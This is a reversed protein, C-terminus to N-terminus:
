FRPPPNHCIPDCVVTEHACDQHSCPDYYDGTYVYPVDAYRVATYIRAALLGYFLAPEAGDVWESKDAARWLWGDEKGFAKIGQYVVNNVMGVMGGVLVDQHMIAEATLPKGALVRDIVRASAGGLFGGAAYGGVEFRKEVPFSVLSSVASEVAWRILFRGILQGSMDLRDDLGAQITLALGKGATRAILQDYFFGAGKAAPDKFVSGGLLAGATGGVVGGLAVGLAQEFTAGDNVASLTNYATALMAFTFACGIGSGCVAVSAATIGINVLTDFWGAIFYGTPDSYRLPNNQAYSYRNYSQLDHTFQVHPDPTLFRGLAADYVRGNMNVLGDAPISEHSTYARNGPPPTFAVGSSALGRPDRRAGWPDYGMTGADGGGWVASLVHGTEDSVATVSGLHDAHYYKNAPSPSAGGQKSVRLAFANGAHGDGAYIFQVHDITGGRTTREYRSKGTTTMGVYVTRAAPGGDSTGSVEQVVRQGDPGYMLEVTGAGVGESVIKTPKNFPSYEITRGGGAIMNGNDDYAFTGSGTVSCLAHPGAPRAGATCGTYLYDKGDKRTLNGLDDYAYSDTRNYAGAVVQATLLRDLGDYTFTEEANAANVTDTRVRQRLNGAGEYRYTWEQILANGDARAVSSSSMLWGTSPNRNSVTEVGNRTQERTVRGSADRALAAWYLGGEVENTVYHLHGFPTYTYGVALSSGNVAPYTVRTPRGANDFTYRTTFTEGDICEAEYDVDGNTKYAVWRGVRNGEGNEIGPITCGPSLREDPASVMASLKGAGPGSSVYAWRAAAGTPDIKEIVRGLGDYKLTFTRGKADRQTAVEGFGNYTYRWEGLDDDRSVARRGFRDYGIHLLNVAAQRTERLDGAANYEFTTAVGNARLWQVKGLVNRKERHQRVEGAQNRTVLITSGEATKEYSTAIQNTVSAGTGDIDGLEHTVLKVRGIGDFETRRWYIPDGIIFPKSEGALRGMLDYEKRTETLRGDFSRGRTGVIRQLGDVYQWGANGSAPRTVTVTAAFPPSGAPALHRRISTTHSEASGCRTITETPNGLRDTLNCTTLGDPGTGQRVSGHLPEFVMYSVEGGENTTRVPFRGNGYPVATILGSGAPASFQNRDYSARSTRFPLRAPGPAGPMCTDFDAACKTTTIAHGWRDYEYATHLEAGEGFGPEEIKKVLALATSTQLAYEYRTTHVIPDDGEDLFTLRRRTETSKTARGRRREVSGIAGYEDEIAHEYKVGAADESVVTMRTRSGREDYRFETTKTIREATVSDSLASNLLFTTEIERFPYVFLSTEPPITGGLEPTCASESVEGPKDCYKMGTVSVLGGGPTYRSVSTPRGTYPFSQSRITFTVFGEPDTVRTTRFGQPGRGADSMRLDGYAHTTIARSGNGADRSVSAVVRLPLKVRRTGPSVIDGDEYTGGPVQAAGTTIVAYTVITKNAMRDPFHKIFPPHYGNLWARRRGPMSQILDTVGDGDLDVFAAHNEFILGNEGRTVAPVVPVPVPGPRPAAVNRYNHGEPGMWTLPTDRWRDYEPGYLSKWTTGTNVFFQGQDDTEGPRNWVLDVLGDANLDPMAYAYHTGPISFTPSDSSTPVIRFVPPPSVALLAQVFGEAGETTYGFGTSLSVQPAHEYFTGPSFAGPARITVVDPFGDGDVDGVQRGRFTAYQADTYEGPDDGFDRRKWRNTTRGTNLLVTFSGVSGTAVRKSVLDPFGDRNIDELRYFGIPKDSITPSIGFAKMSWGSGTSQLVSVEYSDPAGFRVIDILGDNDMDALGSRALEVDGWGSPVAGFATSKAWRDPGSSRLRNLWVEVAPNAPPCQPPLGIPFTCAGEPESERILDPLGDGDVDGFAAAAKGNSRMLWTPLSWSPEHAWGSGTNRWVGSPANEASVVLDFRGDANLDILQTSPSGLTPASGSLEPLLYQPAERWAIDTADWDFELPQKCPPPASPQGPPADPRACYGIRWLQSPNLPWSQSIFPPNQLAPTDRYSLSYAGAPTIIESLRRNQPLTVNGFRIRRVDKREDYLFEIAHFTGDGEAPPGSAPVHGTYDIRTVLLGRAAFDEADDNYRVSYFNGWEDVVRDLAWLGIATGPGGPRVRAGSAFGYFRREGSKTTVRFTEGTSDLEITSFEEDEARFQAWGNVREGAFIRKGDICFGDIWDSSLDWQAAGGLPQAHGDQALTKACRHITSLGALVWGQGAIGNGGQSSHVLRLKPEVGAIGPPVAIPVEYIAAGTPSVSLNGEILGNFADGVAPDSGQAQMPGPLERFPTMDPQVIVEQGGVFVKIGGDGFPIAPLWPTQQSASVSQGAVTWTVTQGARFRPRVAVPHPGRAFVEPPSPYPLHTGNVTVFNSPPGVPVEFSTNSRNDYGFIAEYRDGGIPVVGTVSLVISNAPTPDTVWQPLKMKFARTAGNHVGIGAVEYNMNIATASQLTWHSQTPDILTNLDYHRGDALYIMAHLDGGGGSFATAAVDGRANVGYAHTRPHDADPAPLEDVAGDRFRYGRIDGDYLGHGVIFPGAADWAAALTWGPTVVDANLDRAGGPEGFVTAIVNMAYMGDFGPYFETRGALGVIRGADTIARADSTGSLFPGAPAGLNDIESGPRGARHRYAFPGGGHGWNIYHFGVADGGANISWAGSPPPFVAIDGASTQTFGSGHTRSDAVITGGANIAWAATSPEALGLDPRPAVEVIQGSPKHRFGRTRPRGRWTGYDIGVVEGGDNIDYAESADGRVVGLDVATAYPRPDRPCAIVPGPKCTGFGCIGEGTCSNGDDCALGDHAPPSSCEGTASDCTGAGRCQGTPACTKPTGACVGAGNCKDGTTCHSGDECADNADRNRCTGVFGARNCATCAGGAVGGGCRSDCCVGDVCFGSACQSDSTCAKSWSPDYVRAEALTATGRAGGAILVRGGSLLTATQGRVAAGIPSTAAWSTGGSWMEATALDSSTNGASSGGAVVVQGDALTGSPLLTATHGIRPSTTGASPWGGSAVDFLLATTHMTSGNKGGTVLVSGNALATATHGERAAALQAGAPASWSATAPDFLQVTPLSTSGGSNGGVVLVKDHLATNGPAVLLTATHYRRASSMVPLNTDWSGTGTAPNYVLVSSRVDSGNMGGTLLVHGNALATMTHLHRQWNQPLSAAATWTGEAPSYLQATTISGGGVAQGGTVLVKESTTANGTVTGLQLARHHQRKGSMPNTGAWSNTVPDFIEASDLLKTNNTTGDSSGGTVLVKGNTMLTATHGQRPTSMSQTSTWRPDLLAPYRVADGPWSVRLTCIAAGPATVPRGWPAAPNTDAACGDVALAADTRKGDAGVLYPRSVRLRPAGGKDVLELTGAALRLGAVGQELTLEYSVSARPPRSAFAVFDELGDRLPRHLVTAGTLHADPYVLFGDAALAEVDRAGVLKVSVAAGSATDELHISGAARAPLRTRAAPRAETAPFRPVLGGGPAKDFAHAPGSALPTGSEGADADAQTRLSGLIAHARPSGAGSPSGAAAPATPGPGCAAAAM